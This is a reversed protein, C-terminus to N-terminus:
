WILSRKRGFSYCWVREFQPVSLALFREKGKKEFIKTCFTRHPRLHYSVPSSVAVVSLPQARSMNSGLCSLSTSKLNKKDAHVRGVAEERTRSKRKGEGSEERPPLFRATLGCRPITPTALVEAPKSLYLQRVHSEIWRMPFNTRQPKLCCRAFYYDRTRM